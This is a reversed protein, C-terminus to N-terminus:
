EPRERRAKWVAKREATTPRSTLLVRYREKEDPHLIPGLERIAAQFLLDEIATEPVAFSVKQEPKRPEPRPPAAAAAAKMAEKFSPKATGGTSVAEPAKPKPAAKPKSAVKSKANCDCPAIGCFMCIEIKSRAM